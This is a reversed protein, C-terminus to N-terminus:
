GKHRKRKAARKLEQADKAALTEATEGKEYIIKHPPKLPMSTLRLRGVLVGTRSSRDTNVYSFSQLFYTTLVWAVSM